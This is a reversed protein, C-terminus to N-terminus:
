SYRALLAAWASLLLGFITVGHQVALAQLRMSLHEDLILEVDDGSTDQLPPRPRDTPLELLAPADRLHTRWFDLQKQQLQSDIWRHQWAAYDAYQIPLPPLPDPADGVFAAYLAGLEEIVVGISWGDSVIHHMSLLLVHEDEALRLLRGRVLPGNALDFGTSAESLAHLRAASEPAPDGSLDIRQLALEFPAAIIQVPIDDVSAFHTRLTEHRAVIRDLARTLAQVHLSGSLRVGRHMIYTAGTRPDLQNLFWLRQQAFSLPMPATRPMPLIPPLATARAEGLAQALEALRPQAFLAALPLELGLTSRIRSILRVGLLSHGGLAFFSDHRGIREVGLLEGWLAALLTELEGEPPAYAQVALAGADAAPLARRDLKGNATLPLADLRVYATPLMVEPLRTALIDRLASPEAQEPQETLLYAVLHPEGPTDQRLLVVADHVGPCARLAAAIE